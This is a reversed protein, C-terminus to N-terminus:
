RYLELWDPALPAPATSTSRPRRLRQALKRVGGVPLVARLAFGAALVVDRPRRNAIGSDLFVRAASLRRGRRLHGWAVWHTFTAHDLGVGHARRLDRHKRDVYALEETVDAPDSLLMNQDHELYGVLTEDCAAPTGAWALRIWLDWDCLQFLAEDFAGVERVLETRAMVNSCGAPLVSAALLRTAITAPDPLPFAYRAAGSEDVSVVRAYAFDARADVATDLQARLKRPSWLDDDDLFAVWEGRAAEIGANRATAVGRREGLAVVRVRPEALEALRVPTEDTSGDDVVIVEHEVDTQALASRLATRSLLPWRNRTPIVVSVTPPPATM